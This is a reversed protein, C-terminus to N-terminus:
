QPTPASKAKAKKKAAVKGPHAAKAKPKESAKTSDASQTEVKATKAHRVRHKKKAATAVPAPDPHDAPGTFVVIPPETDIPPGLV